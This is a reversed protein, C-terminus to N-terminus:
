QALGAIPTETYILFIDSKTKCSSVDYSDFDLIHISIAIFFIISDIISDIRSLLCRYRMRLRMSGNDFAAATIALQSRMMGGDM